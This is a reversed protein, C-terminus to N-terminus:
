LRKLWVNQTSNLLRYGKAIYFVLDEFFQKQALDIKKLLIM